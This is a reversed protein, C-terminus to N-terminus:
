CKLIGLQFCIGFSGEARRSDFGPAGRVMDGQTLIQEHEKLIVLFDPVFINKDDFHVAVMSYFYGRKNEILYKGISHMIRRKIQNQSPTMSPLRYSKGNIVEYLDEDM